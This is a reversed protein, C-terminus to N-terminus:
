RQLFKVGLLITFAFFKHTFEYHTTLAQLTNAIGAQTCPLFKHSDEVHLDSGDFVHTFIEFVCTKTSHM